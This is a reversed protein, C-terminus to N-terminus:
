EQAPMGGEVLYWPAPGYDYPPHPYLWRLADLAAPHYITSHSESDRRDVYRYEPAGPVADLAAILTDLGAQMTGGEDGM